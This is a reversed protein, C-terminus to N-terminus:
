NAEVNIALEVLTNDTVQPSMAYATGTDSYGVTYFAVGYSEYGSVAMSAQYGPQGSPELYGSTLPPTASGDVYGCIFFELGGAPTSNVVEIAM